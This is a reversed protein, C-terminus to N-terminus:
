SKMSRAFLRFRKALSGRSILGMALASDDDQIEVVLLHTLGTGQFMDFLEIATLGELSDYHVLSLEESPTMLDGVRDSRSAKGATAPASRQLRWREIDNYTVLGLVQEDTGGIDRRTVLLAHVGLRQMHALADDVSSDCEVTIPYDRRFDTVACFASDNLELPDDDNVVARETLEAAPRIRSPTVLTSEM